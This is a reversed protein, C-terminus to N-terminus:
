VHWLRWPAGRARQRAHGLADKADRFLHFQFTLEPTSYPNPRQERPLIINFGISPAGAESAGRNAAEMIGPGGGIAIVYEETRPLAGGRESALHAFSRDERYWRSHRAPRDERSGFVVITSRVGWSRLFKKAKEYELMFRVGRMSDSLLFDQDLAALIYAPSRMQDISSSQLSETQSRAKEDMLADTQTIEKNRRGVAKNLQILFGSSFM